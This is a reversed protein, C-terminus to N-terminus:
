NKSDPIADVTVVIFVIHKSESTGEWLCARPTVYGIASHIRRENYFDIYM